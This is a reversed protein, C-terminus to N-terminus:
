QNLYAEILSFINQSANQHGIKGEFRGQAKNTLIISDIGILRGKLVTRAGFCVAKVKIITISDGSEIL